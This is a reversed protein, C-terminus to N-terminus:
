AAPPLAPWAARWRHGSALAGPKLIAAREGTFSRHQESNAPRAVAFMEAATSDVWCSLRLQFHYVCDFIELNKKSFCFASGRGAPEAEFGDVM